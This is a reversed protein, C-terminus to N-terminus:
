RDVAGKGFYIRLSTYPLHARYNQTPTQVDKYDYYQYGVNWDVNRNIRFAVRFEPSQYQMPYSTIINQVVASFRDGQGKDRSIRYSAFLSM